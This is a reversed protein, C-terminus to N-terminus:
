EADEKKDDKKEGDDTASSDDSKPADDDTPDEKPESDGDAPKDDTSKDDDKKAADDTATDTEDQKVVENYLAKIESDSMFEKTPIDDHGFATAMASMVESQKVPTLDFWCVGKEKEEDTLDAFAKDQMTKTYLDRWQTKYENKTDADLEKDEEGADKDADDGEASGDDATGTEAGDEGAGTDDATTTDTTASDGESSAGATADMGTDAGETGDIPTTTTDAGTETNEVDTATPIQSTSTTPDTEEENTKEKKEDDAKPEEKKEANGEADEKKDDKKEGEDTSAPTEASKKDDDKKDDSKKDADDAKDAKVDDPKKSTDMIDAGTAASAADDDSTTIEPAEDAPVEAATPADIMVGKHDDDPKIEYSADDYPDKWDKVDFDDVAYPDDLKVNPDFPLNKNAPMTTAGAFPEATVDGLYCPSEPACGQDDDSDLDVSPDFPLGNASETDDNFFKGAEADDGEANDSIFGRAKALNYLKNIVEKDNDDLCTPDMKYLYEHADEMEPIDLVARMREHLEDIEDLNELACQSLAKEFDEQEFMM